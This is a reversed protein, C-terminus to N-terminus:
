AIPGYLLNTVTFSVFVSTEFKLVEDSQFFYKEKDKIIRCRISYSHYFIKTPRRNSFFFFLKFLSQVDDQKAFRPNICPYPINLKSSLLEM